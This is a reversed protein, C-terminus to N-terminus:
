RIQGAADESTAILQKLRRPLDRAMSLTRVMIDLAAAYVGSM